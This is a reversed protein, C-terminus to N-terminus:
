TNNKNKIKQKEKEINDLLRQYTEELGFLCITEKFTPNTAYLMYDIVKQLVRKDEKYLDYIKFALYSSIPYRFAEVYEILGVFYSKTRSDIDDNIYEDVNYPEFYPTGDEKPGNEKILEENRKVIFRNLINVYERLRSDDVEKGSSKDLIDSILFNLLGFSKEHLDNLRFDHLVELQEDSYGKRSLFDIAYKEFFISPFEELALPISNKNYINLVYHMFEHSLTFFDKITGTDKIELTVNKENIVCYSGKYKKSLKIKGKLLADNYIKLLIGEPDIEKLFERFYRDLTIKNMKPLANIRNNLEDPDIIKSLTLERIEFHINSCIKLMNEPSFYGCDELYEVINKLVRNYAKFRYKSKIKDIIEQKNKKTKFFEIFDEKTGFEDFYEKILIDEYIEKQYLSDGLTSITEEVTEETSYLHRVTDKSFGEVILYGIYVTLSEDPNDLRNNLEDTYFNDEIVQKIYADLDDIYQIDLFPLNKVFSYIKHNLVHSFFLENNEIITKLKEAKSKTTEDYIITIGSVSFYNM